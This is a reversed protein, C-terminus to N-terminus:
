LYRLEHILFEVLLFLNPITNRFEDFNRICMDPFLDMLFLTLGSTQGQIM